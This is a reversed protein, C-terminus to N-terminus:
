PSHKMPEPPISAGAGSWSILPSLNTRFVPRLCKAARALLAIPPRHEHFQQELGIGIWANPNEGFESWIRNRIIWRSGKTLSDPFLTRMIETEPTTATAHLLEKIDPFFNRKQFFDSIRSFEKLWKGLIDKKWKRQFSDKFISLLLFQIAKRIGGLQIGPASTDKAGGICAVASNIQIRLGETKRHM